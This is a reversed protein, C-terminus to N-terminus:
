QDTKPGKQLPQGLKKSFDDNFAKPSYHVEKLMDGVEHLIKDYKPNAKERQDTGFSQYVAALGGVILLFLLPLSRKHFM